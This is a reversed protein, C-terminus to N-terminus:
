GPAEDDHRATRFGSLALLAGAAGSGAAGAWLAPRLGATDAFVGGLPAGVVVAARNLSRMTANM